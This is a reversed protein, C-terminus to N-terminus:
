NINIIIPRELGVVKVLARGQIRRSPVRERRKGRLNGVVESPNPYEKLLDEKPSM